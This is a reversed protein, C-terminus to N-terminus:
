VQTPLWNAPINSAAQLAAPAGNNTLVWQYPNPDNDPPKDLKWNNKIWNRLTERHNEGPQEDPITNDAMLKGFTGIAALEELGIRSDDWVLWRVNGPATYDAPDGLDLRYAVLKLIRRQKPTMGTVVSRRIALTTM